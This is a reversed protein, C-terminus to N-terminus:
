ALHQGHLHVSIGAGKLEPYIAIRMARAEGISHRPWQAPCSSHAVFAIIDLDHGCRLQTLWSSHKRVKVYLECPLRVIVDRNLPTPDRILLSSRDTLTQGHPGTWSSEDMIIQGHLGTWSSKDMIVRGYPGTWSSRNMLVKGHPGTWSSKEM